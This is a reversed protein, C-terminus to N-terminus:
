GFFAVILMVIGVLSATWVLTRVVPVGMAYIPVYLARAAVYLGAGYITLTTGAKGAGLCALVAAVFLPFTELFNRLARELRSAIVNTPKPEDRPGMLYAFDREGGSGAAAAWVIQVLGVIVAAVLLKLEVPVSSSM